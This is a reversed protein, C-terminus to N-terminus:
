VMAAGGDKIADRTAAEGLLRRAHPFDRRRSRDRLRERTPVPPAQGCTAVSQKRFSKHCKRRKGSPDSATDPAHRAPYAAM